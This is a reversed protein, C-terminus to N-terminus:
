RRRGGRNSSSTKWVGKSVCNELADSTCESTLLLNTQKLQLVYVTRMDINIVHMCPALTRKEKKEGGKEGTKGKQGAKVQMPMGHYGLLLSRAAAASM